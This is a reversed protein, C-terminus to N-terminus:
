ALPEFFQAADVHIARLCVRLLPKGGRNGKDLKLPDARLCPFVPEVNNDLWGRDFRV